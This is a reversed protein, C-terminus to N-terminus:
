FPLLIDLFQQGYRPQQVDSIQGKGGYSVRAEAIKSIPITNTSTIDEPRAVSAVILERMEYNVRVEQRGEIVMNGNPLLQTVVAALKMTIKEERDIGGGMLVRVATDAGGYSQVLSGAMQHWGDVLVFFILKFPLSIIVV